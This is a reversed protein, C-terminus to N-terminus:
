RRKKAVKKFTKRFDPGPTTGVPQTPRPPPPTGPPKPTCPWEPFRLSPKRDRPARGRSNKAM